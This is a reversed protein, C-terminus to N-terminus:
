IPLLALSYAADDSSTEGAFLLMTGEPRKATKVWQVVFTPSQATGDPLTWSGSGKGTSLDITLNIPFQSPAGGSASLMSAQSDQSRISGRVASPTFLSIDGGGLFSDTFLDDTLRSLSVSIGENTGSRIYDFVEGLAHETARHETRESAMAERSVASV